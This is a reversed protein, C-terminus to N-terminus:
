VEVNESLRELVWKGILVIPLTMVTLVVGLAAPYGYGTSGNGTSLRYTLNFLQFGITSTEYLGTGDTFLYVNYDCTFISCLAFTLLTCITSWICPIAISFMETFFGAGDLEASEFLEDPVRTYAGTLVANNGVIGMISRILLLTIFATDEHRLLGSHRAQFPLDVGMKQVVITIVGRGAVMEKILLTWIIAGMLSPIIYIIRFVYHGLIKRTLVYTTVLTIPFILGEGVIWLIFSRGLSKALNIGLMDKDMFGQYVMKFNAWTFAGTSDQFALGISSLNVGVWFICFQIVPFAVVLYAFLFDRRELQSYNKRVYELMRKWLSQQKAAEARKQVRRYREKKRVVFVGDCYPCKQASNEGTVLLTQKCLPCSVEYQKATTGNLNQEM